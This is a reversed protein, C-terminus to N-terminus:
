GDVVMKMLRDMDKQKGPTFTGIHETKSFVNFRNVGAYTATFDGNSIEGQM